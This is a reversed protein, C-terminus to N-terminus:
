KAHECWKLMAMLDNQVSHNMLGEKNHAPIYTCVQGKGFRKTWGAVSQGHESISYLFISVDENHEIFYHEDMIKVSERGIGLEHGQEYEYLVQVHKEPHYKFTGGVMNVYSTNKEYSALGSHWVLWSGGESVYNIIGSEDSDTMWNEPFEQNPDIRNESGLIVVDPKAELAEIVHKRDIYTVNIETNKKVAHSLAEKLQVEDHYYDGLIAIVEM